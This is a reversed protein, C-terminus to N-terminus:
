SHPVLLEGQLELARRPLRGQTSCEEGQDRGASRAGVQPAKGQEQGQGGGHQADIGAFPRLLTLRQTRLEPPATPPYTRVDEEDRAEKEGELQAEYVEVQTLNTGGGRPFDIEEPANLISAVVAPKEAPQAVFSKDDEAKRKTGTSSSPTFPKAASSTTSPAAGSRPTFPKKTDTAKYPKKAATPGHAKTTRTKGGGNIAM